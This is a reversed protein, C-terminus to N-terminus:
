LLLSVTSYEVLIKNPLQQIANVLKFPKSLHNSIYNIYIITPHSFNFSINQLKNVFVDIFSLYIDYCHNTDYCHKTDYCHGDNIQPPKATASNTIRNVIRGTQSDSVSCKNQSKIAVQGDSGICLVPPEDTSNIGFSQIFVSVLLLLTLTRHVMKNKNKISFAM